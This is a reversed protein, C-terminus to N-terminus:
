IYTWIRPLLIILQIRIEHKDLGFRYLLGISPVDNVAM